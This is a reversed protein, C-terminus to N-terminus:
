CPELGAPQPHPHCPRGPQCLILVCAQRGAEGGKGRWGWGGACPQTLGLPEFLGVVRVQFPADMSGVMEEGTHQNRTGLKLLLPFNWVLLMRFHTVAMRGIEALRQERGSPQRGAPEGVPQPARDAPADAPSPTPAGPPAAEAQEAVLLRKAESFWVVLYANAVAYDM